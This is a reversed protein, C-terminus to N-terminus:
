SGILQRVSQVLRDMQFPKTLLALFGHSRFSEVIEDDAYGSTLIARIAPFGSRLRTMVECAGPGGRIDLDALLLDFPAGFEHARSWAAVTDDANATCHVDFGHASLMAAVVERIPAEDDMFLIRRRRGPGTPPEPIAPSASETPLAPLWVTVTTGEGSSSAISLHGGHARIAAGATTLGMGTRGARTTFWPDFLRSLHDSPVGHGEDRFTIIVGASQRSDSSSDPSANHASLHLTGGGPMADDANRALCAFAEALRTEDAEIPWLDSPLQCTMRAKGGLLAFAVAKEALPRLSVPRKRLDNGRPARALGTLQHAVGETRDCSTAIATILDRIEQRAFPQRQLLDLHGRLSTLADTLERAAGGMSRAAADMRAEHLLCAERGLADTRDIFNLLLAQGPAWPIRTIFVDLSRLSGDPKRHPLGSLRMTHPVTLIRADFDEREFLDPLVLSLFRQVLDRRRVGLVDEAAANAEVILGERATVVLAADPSRQFIDEFRRTFRLSEMALRARERRRMVAREIVALRSGVVSEGATGPDPLFEDFGRKLWAEVRSPSEETTTLAILHSQDGRDRIARIFEAAEPATAHNLRLILCDPADLEAPAGLAASFSHCHSCEHGRGRLIALLPDAAPPDPDIVITRVLRLTFGPISAEPGGTVATAPLQAPDPDTV